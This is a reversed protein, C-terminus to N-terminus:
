PIKTPAPDNKGPTHLAYLKWDGAQKVLTIAIPVKSGDKRTIEGDLSAEKPNAVRRTWTIASYDAIGLEHATQEFGQFSQAAQFTFATSDYAERTKGSSLLQFFTNAADQPDAGGFLGCGALALMLAAVMAVIALPVAVKHIR